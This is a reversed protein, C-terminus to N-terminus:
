VNLHTSICHELKDCLIKEDKTLYNELNKFVSIYQTYLKEAVFKGKNTTELGTVRRDKMTHVRKVYGWYELGDLHHTIASPDIDLLNSVKTPTDAFRLYIIMLVLWQNFTIKERRLPIKLKQKIEKFIKIGLFYTTVHMSMSPLVQEIANLDEKTIEFDNM